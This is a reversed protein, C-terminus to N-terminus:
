CRRDRGAPSRGPLLVLPLDDPLRWRRALATLRDPGVRAPDFRAMDVGRPITIVPSAPQGYVAEIHGAIFDSNAIIREGKLMIANYRRKLKGEHGYTGHFTTVFRAGTRRAAAYASWAPARSRAHVIDIQASRILKELRGANARMVLPNKAALPLTIHRAGARELERVMPGGESAVLARWGAKVLAQAIDVTTREVGGSGLAPLVQLVSPAGRGAPRPDTSSDTMPRARM